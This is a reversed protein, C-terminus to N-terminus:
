HKSRKKTYYYFAYNLILVSIFSTVAGRIGFKIFGILVAFFYIIKQRKVFELIVKLSLEPEESKEM